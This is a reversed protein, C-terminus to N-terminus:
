TRPAYRSHISGNREQLKRKETLGKLTATEKAVQYVIFRLEFPTIGCIIEELNVTHNMLEQEM